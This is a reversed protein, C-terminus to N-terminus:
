SGPQIILTITDSFIGARKRAIEPDTVRVQFYIDTGMPSLVPEVPESNGCNNANCTFVSIGSGATELRASYQITDGPAGQELAGARKLVGGNSSIMSIFFTVNTQANIRARRTDGEKVGTSPEGLTLACANFLGTAHDNSNTPTNQLAVDCGTVALRMVPLVRTSIMVASSRVTNSTTDLTLLGLGAQADAPLVFSYTGPSVIQGDAIRLRAKSALLGQSQQPISRALGNNQLDFAASLPALDVNEYSLEFNLNQGQASLNLPTGNTGVGFFVTAAPECQAHRVAIDIDDILPTRSFPDYIQTEVLAPFSLIPACIEAAKLSYAQGMAFCLVGNLCMLRVLNPKM